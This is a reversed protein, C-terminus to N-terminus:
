LLFINDKACRTREEEPWYASQVEGIHRKELYFLCLRSQGIGGGITLPYDGNALANRYPTTTEPSGYFIQLQELLAKKDVRIGMSSLELARSLPEHWVIIDGNLYWDDYDPSRLDHPQGDDLAHGIQYLFVAKKERAILTERTDADADPYRDKLEQASIWTISDPLKEELVPYHAAIKRDITKLVTYLKDVSKKLFTINRDKGTIVKEWDWQDVYLSHIPSLVEDPRIANMDTYLGEGNKFGYRKLADRKWKALSQVIELTEGNHRFSLPKERGSLEDNLGSDGIVFSPASIRELNMTEALTNEFWDKIRKIARETDILTLKSKYM